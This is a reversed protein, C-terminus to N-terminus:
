LELKVGFTPFMGLGVRAVKGTMPIFLESNVNYTNQIDTVDLFLTLDSRRMQVKYDARIDFSIFDDLRKGSVSTIEQSYRLRSNDNLVNEHVIFADVPRGTAYRFKASLIWKENPKYSALLSVVHPVDFTYDYEGLGQHDNRVSKMYSYSVQGYYRRSLRKILSLDAGYAYGSGDNTLHSQVRNPQVVLDDFQKHWAEATLKLDGSFQLKYGLISQITRENRLANDAQQGAINSYAADQYYIGTAFNISHRDSLAISGSLRPSVTHQETFGTYDYRIGPNLTFRRTVNWSLSIYGSGNFASSNFSANFLAPDLV